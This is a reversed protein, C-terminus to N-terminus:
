DAASLQTPAPDTAAVDSGRRAATTSASLGAGDRGPRAPEAPHEVFPEHARHACDDRRCARCEFGGRTILSAHGGAYADGYVVRGADGAGCGLMVAFQPPVGGPESAAKTVQRTFLLFREGETTELMQSLMRGPVAFASYAIWLPCASGYRPISFGPLDFRKSINGAPDVRMFAFAVGEAGPRRLTVLRHAIQEFSAAFLHQLRGIDYREREAAELMPAYPLLMAGAAYRALAEGARTRAAESSLRPDDIAAAIPETLKRAALARAL